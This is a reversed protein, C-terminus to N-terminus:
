GRVVRAVLMKKVNTLENVVTIIKVSEFNTLKFYAGYEKGACPMYCKLCDQWTAVRRSAAMM